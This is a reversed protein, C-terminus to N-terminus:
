EYGYRSTMLQGIYQEDPVIIENPVDQGDTIYSININADFCLNLIAGYTTTEDLKTFIVNEILVEKFQEYIEKIDKYRSALSLVLHTETKFNEVEIMQKLEKVYKDNRFNRGATDVFIYDYHSLKNLADRYEEISYVVELPVNLIKAYTKLQEIAAIRYTDMTIFAINKKDNIVKNSAVKALTTTKGVGTPGIFQVIKTNVPVGIHSYKKLRAVIEDQVLPLLEKTTLQQQDSTKNLISQLIETSFQEDVEQNKLFNLILAYDASFPQGSQFANAKLMEKVQKIETLVKYHEDKTIFGPENVSVKGRHFTKSNSTREMKVSKERTSLTEDIAAIVEVQRKKFFGLIGGTKIEKSDLIVANAGLDKKIRDIAEPMSKAKYKMIKM